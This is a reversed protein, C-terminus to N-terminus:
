HKPSQPDDVMSTHHTNHERGRSCINCNWYIAQTFLTAREELKKKEKKEKSKSLHSTNQPRMAWSLFIIEKPKKRERERKSNQQKMNSAILSSNKRKNYKMHCQAQLDSINFLFNYVRRTVIDTCWKNILSFPKTFLSLHINHNTKLRTFYRIHNGMIALWKEIM